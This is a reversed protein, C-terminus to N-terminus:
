SRGRRRVLDVMVGVITPLEPIRLAFAVAVFALGGAFTATGAAALLTLTGTGPGVVPELLVQVGLAAAIAFATAIGATLFIAALAGLDIGGLRRDLIAVLVVAEIWAAIAIALALGPLGLPGALVVALTTNIAVALVAALVPTTTDQRAYFARALVAISAHAPLGLLFVGFTDATLPLAQAGFAGYAFLVTVVELRLIIGLAAIPLMVFV